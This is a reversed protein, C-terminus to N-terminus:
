SAAALKGDALGHESAAKVVSFLVLIHSRSAQETHLHTHKSQPMYVSLCDSYYGVVSARRKKLFWLFSVHIITEGFMLGLILCSAVSEAEGGNTM